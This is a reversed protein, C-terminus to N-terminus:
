VHLVHGEEKREVMIAASVVQTTTPHLSTAARKGGPHCPNLTYHSVKQPAQVLGNMM